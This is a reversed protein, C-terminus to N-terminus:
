FSDERFFFSKLNKLLMGKESIPLVIKVSSGKRFTYRNVKIHTIARMPM